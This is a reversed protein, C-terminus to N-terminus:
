TISRLKRMDFLGLGQHIALSRVHIKNYDILYYRSVGYSPLLIICLCYISVVNVHELVAASSCSDHMSFAGMFLWSLCMWEKRGNKAHAFWHRLSLRWFEVKLASKRRFHDGSGGATPRHDRSKKKRFYGKRLCGLVALLRDRAQLTTRKRILMRFICILAIRLDANVRFSYDWRGCKPRLRLVYFGRSYFCTGYKKGGNEPRYTGEGVELEILM